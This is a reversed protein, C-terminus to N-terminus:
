CDEGGFLWCKLRHFVGEQRLEAKAEAKAQRHQERAELRKLREDTSQTAQQAQQLGQQERQQGYSQMKQFDSAAAQTAANIGAYLYNYPNINPVTNEGAGGSVRKRSADKPPGDCSAPRNKGVQTDCASKNLWIDYANSM